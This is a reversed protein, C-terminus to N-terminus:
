RGGFQEWRVHGPPVGHRRLGHALAKMMPPPGCMYIWPSAGPPISRLVSDATLMPDTDTSVFHAHVSPHRRTALEIEDRYIADDAHRVSYYFDVERDFADDLSRMWSMFPTVGIGGAIWIQQAGGGRYDFGGFPGIVKAPVGPRLADVLERTYDGSAKVTVELRRESPASSISFPHRQWAASGGFALVIFQGASFALPTRATDLGVEITRDNLRRVSGVTYDHVAVFYRALLERYAYAGVGIVGVVVFAARLVTSARLSPAVISAHVLAVAVFLGTLRHANLWHEYSARALARIPGPWRAARLLPALAWAILLLLGALALDGLAHGLSTEYPDPSSTIFALHPVLLLVGAAAARRHWVIVRDLGGFAREIAPRLTALVLSCSMLLVAQAGCLEGVFRGTPQGAPRAILWLVVYGVAVAGLAAPGVWSSKWPPRAEGHDESFDALGGVGGHGVVDREAQPRRDGGSLDRRDRADGIRQM